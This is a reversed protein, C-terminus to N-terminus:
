VSWLVNRLPVVTDFIKYRYHQWDSGGDIKVNVCKSSGCDTSGSVSVATGVDWPLNATTIADKEYQASRTVLAIRLSRIQLWGANTTPTVKDYLDVVGDANTDKGYFAQLQVVNPYIETVTASANNTNFITLTLRENSVSYTRDTLAGLNILTSGSPYGGAPFINQGGPPNWDSQGSNHLVQNQGQGGGNGNGNGGAKTAQLISCWNNGDIAPPVAILLDGEKIGLASDVFFNAANPPHDVVVRTPVTFADSSSAMIRVSDPAGNVGAIITAPTLTMPPLNVGGFQSRVECGMARLVSSMGYGAMGIDRQMTYLALVGTAQADSGSTTTRKHGESFALTQLIVISVLLGITGGVLLEVLTFGRQAVRSM